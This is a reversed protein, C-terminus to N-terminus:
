LIERSYRWSSDCPVYKRDVKSGSHWIRKWHESCFLGSPSMERQNVCSVQLVNNRWMWFWSHVKSQASDSRLFTLCALSPPSGAAQIKPATLCISGAHRGSGRREARLLASGNHATEAAIFGDPKNWTFDSLLAWSIHLFLKQTGSNCLQIHMQEQTDASSKVRVGRIGVAVLNGSLLCWKNVCLNVESVSCCRPRPQM